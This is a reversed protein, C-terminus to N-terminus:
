RMWGDKIVRKFVTNTFVQQKGQEDLTIIRRRESGEIIDTIEYIKNSVWILDNEFLDWAKTTETKM